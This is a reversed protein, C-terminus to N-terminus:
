IDYDFVYHHVGGTIDIRLSGTLGALAGTGSDPVVTVTLAGTGRNMTGSHQLVFTGERGHLTGVVYELAVYGASNPVPTRASLMEVQGTGALEGVFVKDISIRGLTLGDVVLHPSHPHLTVTFTGTARQPM